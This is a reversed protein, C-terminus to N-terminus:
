DRKRAERREQREEKKAERREKREAKKQARKAKYDAKFNSVADQFSIDNDFEGKFAEIYVFEFGTFM